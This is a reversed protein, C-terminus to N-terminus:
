PKQPTNPNPTRPHKRADKIKSTPIIMHIHDRHITIFESSYRLIDEKNEGQCEAYCEANTIPLFTDKGSSGVSKNLFDTLRGGVPIKITGLIKFDQIYIIVRVEESQRHLPRVQRPPSAKPEIAM